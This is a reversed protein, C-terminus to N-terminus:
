EGEKGASVEASKGAPSPEGAKGKPQGGMEKRARSEMVPLAEIVIPMLSDADYGRGGCVSTSIVLSGYTVQQWWYPYPGGHEESVCEGSENLSDESFLNAGEGRKFPQPILKVLREGKRLVQEQCHLSEELMRSQEWAADLATRHVTVTASLRVRGKGGTPPVEFHRTLSALVDKPLPKRNWVCSGELVSWTRPDSEYPAAKSVEIGFDKPGAILTGILERARKPSTPQLAADAEAMPEVPSVAPDPSAVVVGDTAAKGEAGGGTCGAM